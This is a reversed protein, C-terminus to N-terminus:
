LSSKEGAFVVKESWDKIIQNIEDPKEWQGFHNADVSSRTLNPIFKEMGLSM